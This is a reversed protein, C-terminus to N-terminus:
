DDNKRTEKTDISNNLYEQLKSNDITITEIAPQEACIAGAALSGIYQPETVNSQGYGVKPYKENLFVEKGCNECIHSYTYIPPICTLVHDTCYPNPNRFLEGGCTCMAHTVKLITGTIKTFM